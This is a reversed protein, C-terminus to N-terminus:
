RDPDAPLLFNIKTAGQAPKSVLPADPAQKAFPASLKVRRKPSGPQDLLQVEGDTRFDKSPAFGGGDRISYPSRPQVPRDRQFQTGRHASARLQEQDIPRAFRARPFKGPGPQLYGGRSECVWRASLCPKAQLSPEPACLRSCAL